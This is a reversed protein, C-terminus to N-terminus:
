APTLKLRSCRPDDPHIFYGKSQEPSCWSWSAPATYQISRYGYQDMLSLVATIEAQSHFSCAIIVPHTQLTARAGELVLGASGEVDIKMFLTRSGPPVDALYSDLTVTDVEYELQHKWMTENRKGASSGLRSLGGHELNDCFTLRGCAAAVAGEYVSIHESHLERINKHLLEINRPSPEFAAIRAAGGTLVHFRQVTLGINAGVDLIFDTGPLLTEWERRYHPEFRHIGALLSPYEAPRYWIRQGSEGRMGFVRDRFANRVLFRAVALVARKPTM